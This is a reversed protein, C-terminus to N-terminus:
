KYLYIFNMFVCDDRLLLYINHMKNIKINDEKKGGSMHQYISTCTGHM